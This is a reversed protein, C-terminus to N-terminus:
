ASSTESSGADRREWRGVEDSRASSRFVKDDPWNSQTTYLMPTLCDLFGHPYILSSEICSITARSSASEADATSPECASFPRLPQVNLRVSLRRRHPAYTRDWGVWLHRERSKNQLAKLSRYISGMMEGAVGSTGVDFGFGVAATAASNATGGDGDVGVPLDESIGIKKSARTTARRSSPQSSMSSRVSKRQVDTTTSPRRLRERHASGIMSATAVVQRDTSTMYQGIEKWKRDTNEKKKAEQIGCSSYGQKGNETPRFSADNKMHTKNDNIKELITV